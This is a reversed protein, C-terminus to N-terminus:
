EGRRTKESHHRKCLGQWNGADWFTVYDGRHPKIHDVETAVRIEDNARCVRCLRNEPKALFSRAAVQWRNGYLREATKPRHERKHWPPRYTKKKDPM